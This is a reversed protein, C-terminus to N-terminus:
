PVGMPPVEVPPAEVRQFRVDRARVNGASLGVVRGAADRRFVVELLPFPGVFVDEESHSLRIPDRRRQNVVLDGDVAEIRYYYEFEPSYYWGTYIDLEPRGEGLDDSLRRAPHNGSQHLTLGTVDGEGDTHFTISAEIGDLVFTSDSLPVLDVAPQGTGQTLLRSGQRRFTLVFGPQIELEYRGVFRDFAAPDYEDRDFGETPEPGRAPAEEAPAEAVPEMREGFFIETLEATVSAPFAGHNALVVLGGDEDPYYILRSQFGMDGGSHHLQRLGRHEDVYIGLGYGTSAGSPLVYPRTMEDFVARPEGEATGLFVMWRALDEVTTYVSGAGMSSGVSPAEVLAGDRSAYGRAAGSVVEMPHARIVSEGMGAPEFVRTRVWDPFAEGTVREVVLSLLMFGTNNYNREGGPPNQLRPQRQVVTLAEEHAFYDSEEIRWGGIALANLVERYGSTHTLLHRLTVTEGLDPLEPLHERVDDDLSLRGAQALQVVSFATFPKATSGVNMRTSLELPVALGIDAMGRARQYVTEGDRIVAVVVGPADDRDFQSLLRDAREEPSAHEPAPVEGAATRVPSVQSSAPQLVAAEEVMVAMAAAAVVAALAVNLSFCHHARM